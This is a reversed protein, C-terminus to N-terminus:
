RNEKPFNRFGESRLSPYRSGDILNRLKERQEASLQAKGQELTRLRAFRLDARLREIERVKAEVQGLDVSESEVLTALDTEAIRVDAERRITERQFDSRLRELNRVQEASLGLEDRHRLMLSILPREGRLGILPLLHERWRSGLGHLERALEEWARGLEEHVVPRSSATDSAAVPMALALFLVLFGFHATSRM